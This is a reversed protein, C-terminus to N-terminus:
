GGVSITSLDWDASDSDLDSLVREIFSIKNELKDVEREFEVIKRYQEQVDRDDLGQESRETRLEDLEDEFSRLKYNLNEVSTYLASSRKYMETINVLIDQFSSGLVDRIHSGVISSLETYVSRLREYRESFSSGMDVVVPANELIYAKQSETLIVKKGM